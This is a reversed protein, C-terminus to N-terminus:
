FIFEVEIIILWKQISDHAVIKRMERNLILAICLYNINQQNDSVIRRWILYMSM